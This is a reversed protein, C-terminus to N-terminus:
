NKAEMLKLKALRLISSLRERILKLCLYIGVLKELRLDIGLFSVIHLESSNLSSVFAMLNETRTYRRRRCGSSSFDFWDVMTGIYLLSDTFLPEQQILSGALYRGFLYVSKKKKSQFSELYRAFYKTYNKEFLIEKM